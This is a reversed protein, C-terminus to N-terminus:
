CLGCDKLLAIDNFLDMTEGDALVIGSKLMITRECLKKILDMDHSAIVCSHPFSRIQEMLHIRALPDLNASPEDMVLLNPNMALVTAIAVSRKQGVSLQYCARERLHECGVAKLADVIRREVEEDPLKMNIPGFAVDEEVTPMFLQDDPNQFLVGVSQRVLPLTKRSIPIGGVDVTGSSCLLLGNTHLVLTSKGAGNSGVLGVKEGHKIEFSVDKLVEFGNPYSFSVKDFKLYHHSM